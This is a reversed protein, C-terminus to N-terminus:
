LRVTTGEVAVFAGDWTEKAQRAVEDMFDDEHYPDHHFIALQKVNARQALRVGEQWTSHGWGIHRPFEEDTYTSDYAVLDAGDILALITEDPSGPVHETDTVYCFSRGGAEIRYGTAGDPHQLPATRITLKGLQFTEGARFDKFDIDAQLASLPVPFTPRAMQGALVREVGGADLLHGAWVTFHHDPAYAPTFFPFGNIHDWHTHTLLLDARNIKRQLFSQGLNRIGTGADLILSQGDAYVELCSTNGGYRVHNPSPCAISGRVGWFRVWFEMLAGDQAHTLVNSVHTRCTSGERAVGRAAEDPSM